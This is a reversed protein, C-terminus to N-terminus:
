LEVVTPDVTKFPLIYKAHRSIFDSYENIEELETRLKAYEKFIRLSNISWEGIVREVGDRQVMYAQYRDVVIQKGNINFQVPRIFGNGLIEIVNSRSEWNHASGSINRIVFRKGYENVNLKMRTGECSKIKDTTIFYNLKSDKDLVWEVKEIKIDGHITKLNLDRVGIYTENKISNVVLEKNNLKNILRKLATVEDEANDELLVNLLLTANVGSVRNFADEKRMSVEEMYILKDVAMQKTVQEIGVCVLSKGSKDYDRVNGISTEIFDGSCSKLSMALRLAVAKDCIGNCDGKGCVCKYTSM